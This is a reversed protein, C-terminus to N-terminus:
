KYGKNIAELNETLFKKPLSSELIKDDVKIELKKLIVGLLTMNMVKQNNYLNLLEKQLEPETLDFEMDGQTFIPNDIEEKSFVIYVHSKGKRVLPSYKSTLALNYEKEKLINALSAGLRQIGQGAKGSLLIKTM